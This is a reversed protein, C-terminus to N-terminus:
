RIARGCPRHRAGRARRTPRRDIAQPRCQPRSHPRHSPRGGPEPQQAPAVADDAPPAQIRLVPHDGSRNRGRVSAILAAVLVSGGLTMLAVSGDLLGPVLFLAALAWIALQGGRRERSMLVVLDADHLGWYM